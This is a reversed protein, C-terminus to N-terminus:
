TVTLCYLFINWFDTNFGSTGLSEHTFLYLLEQEYNPQNAQSSTVRSCAPRKIFINIIVFVGVFGRGVGVCPLIGLFVFDQASLFVFPSQCILSQLCVCCCWLVGWGQCADRLDSHHWLSLNKQWKWKRKEMGEEWIVLGSRNQWIEIELSCMTEM